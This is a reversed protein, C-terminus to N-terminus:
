EMELIDSVYRVKSPEIKYIDLDGTPVVACSGDKYFGVVEGKFPEGGDDFYICPIGIFQAEDYRVACEDNYVAKDRTDDVPYIRYQISGLEVNGGVFLGVSWHSIYDGEDNDRARCLYKYDKGSMVAWLSVEPIAHPRVKKYDLNTPLKITHEM